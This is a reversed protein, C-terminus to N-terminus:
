VGKDVGRSKPRPGRAPRITESSDCWSMLATKASWSRPQESPEDDLFDSEKSADFLKRAAVAAHLADYLYTGYESLGDPAILELGGLIIKSKAMPDGVLKVRRIEVLPCSDEHHRGHQHADLVRALENMAKAYLGILDRARM